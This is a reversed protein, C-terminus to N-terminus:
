NKVVKIVSETTNKSNKLKFLYVGAAYQGLDVQKEAGEFPMDQLKRGYIDFIELKDVNFGDVAVKVVGETPNPYVRVMTNEVDDIGTGCTIQITKPLSQGCQNIAYVSLLAYGMSTVNVQAITQNFELNWNPNTLVWEYSQTNEVPAITYVYNGLTLLESPGQIESNIVPTSNVTLYLIRISDCGAVTQLSDIYIFFGSESQVPINFGQGSYSQGKCIEATFTQEYASNVTLLHSQEAVCNDPSTAVVSYVTSVTPAVEISNSVAGTSWCFYSTNGCLATLTTSEGKCINDPGVITITPVSLQVMTQSASASCGNADTLQVQYFGPSSVAISPTTDGTNWLFSGVGIATLTEMAGECFASPGSIAVQPSHTFVVVATATDVCGYDNSVFVQYTGSQSVIISSSIQGTSWWYSTGGEATLMAPTGECFHDGMQIHAVPLAHVAVVQSATSVCYGNSATVTYNTTEMPTVNISPSTSGNSWLYSSGGQATLMTTEGQCLATDGTITVQPHEYFRVTLSASNTCGYSNTVVVSYTGSTTVNISRNNSGTSWHFSQANSSTLTAVQGECLATDGTISAVPIANVTLTYTATTSCGYTNSAVVSYTTTSTAKIRISPTTDRTSWLFFSANGTVTLTVSDGRCVATAPGVISVGSPASHAMVLKAGESACGFANTVTVRYYDSTSVTIVSDTAGTSWLYSVPENVVAVLDTSEGNCLTSEGDIYVEPKAIMSVSKSAPIFCGGVASMVSYEDTSSVQISDTTEGTSWLYNSAGHAVLWVSNGECFYDSGSISLPVYSQVNLTLSTMNNCGNSDIAVLYFTTTTDPSVQISATTDGTSWVYTNGGEATLTVTDGKCMLSPGVIRTDPLPLIAVNAEAYSRCGDENTAVCSYTGSEDVVISSTRNGTNWLFDVTQSANATLTVREGSCAVSDGTISLQPSEYLQVEVSATSFCNDRSWGIVSYIDPNRVIIVSDESGNSWLYRVGGHATLVASDEKCIQSNGTINIEPVQYYDLRKSIFASCGGANTVVVSYLGNQSIFKESSTDGDNWLYAIGGFVQWLVSDGVCVSDPGTISPTPLDLVTVNIQASNSCGNVDVVNVSYRTTQQPSVTIHDTTNDAVSWRFSAANPASAYITTTMGICIISDGSFTITPLPHVTIYVSDKASCGNSTVTLVYNGSEYVNIERNTSGTSWQYAYGSAWAATLKVANGMCTEPTSATIGATPLQKETVRVSLISSCGQTNTATVSYIGGVNVNLEPSTALVENFANRWVYSTGGSALLVTSEGECFSQNGYVNVVPNDNQTVTMSASATCNAASTVVVTYTGPASVLLSQGPTTGNWKYSAINTGDAYLTTTSGTCFHDNGLVSVTPVVNVTVEKQANSSCGFDDSVTVRYVQSTYAKISQTTDGTSWLFHTGGNAVLVTTDGQCISTEGTISALPFETVLVTHSATATCGRNSTGTVIYTTTRSPNVSIVAGQLGNSWVYTAAGSAQLIAQDGQCVHDAGDIRIDPAPLEVIELSDYAKCGNDATVTLVYWGPTEVTLTRSVDGTNWLIQGTGNGTLTVSGGECYETATASISATPNELVILNLTLTSDCGYQNQFHVEYIGAEYFVSDGRFYPLESQCLIVTDASASTPHIHIDHYATKQCGYQSFAQLTLHEWDEANVQAVYNLEARQSLNVSNKDYWYYANAGTAYLPLTNGYCMEDDGVITVEPDPYIEFTISNTGSCGMTDIVWVTCVREMTNTYYTEYGTSWLVYSYQTPDVYVRALSNNCHATDGYIQPIPNEKINVRLYVTSDCGHISQFHITYDGATDITVDEIYIPLVNSCTVLTDYTTYKPYVTITISDIDFCETNNDTVRVSYTTTETPRVTIVDAMQGNSWWYRWNEDYDTAVHLGASWDCAATKGGFVYVSINPAENVTLTLHVLSDFRVLIDYNGATYIASDGVMYPLENNCVSDEVFAEKVIRIEMMLQYISDCGMSSVLSDAYIGQEWIERERWVFPLQYTAVATDTLFFYSPKTQLNFQFISDCDLGTKLSDYYVGAIECLKGRWVVPLDNECILTDKQILYSPNVSLTLQYVSDYGLTSKLSDYYVGAEPCSLGRWSYPLANQCCTASDKFLYIPIELVSLRLTVISDCSHITQLTDNYDGSEFYEKGNFVYPLKDRYCSREVLTDAPLWVAVEVSAGGECGYANVASVEYRSTELPMDVVVSDTAGTSWLYAVGGRATLKIVQGQCTETPGVITIDAEPLLRVEVSDKASCAHEDTGVVSYWGAELVEVSDEISGTNWLYSDAGHAYLTVKHGACLSDTGSIYVVPNEYVELTVNLTSDCGHITQYHFPYTGADELIEGAYQIPLESRCAFITDFLVYKPYVTITISAAASCDNLNDTVVVSYITTETPKVTIVDSTKGTSWLYSWNENYDAAIRVGSTWNCAATQGTLSTVSFVPAAKVSLNVHVVSDVSIWINYHGANFLASDGVLLPLANDCVATDLTSHKAVIKDNVECCNVNAKLTVAFLLCCSLVIWKYFSQIKM